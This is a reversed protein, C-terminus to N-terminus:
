IESTKLPRNLVMHIKDDSTIYFSKVLTNLNISFKYDSRFKLTYEYIPQAGETAVDWENKVTAKNTMEITVGRRDKEEALLVRTKSVLHDPRKSTFYTNSYKVKAIEDAERLIKFFNERFEKTKKNHVGAHMAETLSMHDYSDDDEIDLNMVYEIPVIEPTRFDQEINKMSLGASLLAGVIFKRTDGPLKELDDLVKSLEFNFLSM